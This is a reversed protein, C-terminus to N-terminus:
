RFVAHSPLMLYALTVVLIFVFLLMIAWKKGGPRGAPRVSWLEQTEESAKKSAPSPKHKPDFDM